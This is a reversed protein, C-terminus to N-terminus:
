EIKINVNVKIEEIGFYDLFPNCSLCAPKIEGIEAIITKNKAGKNTTEFAISKTGKLVDRAEDKTKIKIKTRKEYEYLWKSIAEPEACKGHQGRRILEEANLSPNKFWDYVLPHLSEPLEGEKLGTKNSVASTFKSDKLLVSGAGPKSSNSMKAVEDIIKNGETYVISNETASLGPIDRIKSEGLLKIGTEQTNRLSKWKLYGGAKNIEDINKSVLNLDEVNKT